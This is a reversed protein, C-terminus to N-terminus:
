LRYYVILIRVFRTQQSTHSWISPLNPLKATSPPRSHLSFGGKASLLTAYGVPSVIGVIVTFSSMCLDSTSTNPSAAPDCQQSCRMILRVRMLRCAHLVISRIQRMWVNGEILYSSLLSRASLHIRQSPLKHTQALSGAKTFFVLM